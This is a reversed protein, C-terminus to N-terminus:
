MAWRNMSAPMGASATDASSTRSRVAAVGQGRQAVALDVDEERDVEEVFAEVDGLDVGHQEQARGLARSDEQLLQAAAEPEGPCSRASRAPSRRAGVGHTGNRDVTELAHGADAALRQLALDLLTERKQRRATLDHEVRDRLIEHQLVDPLLHGRSPRRQHGFHTRMRVIPQRGIEVRGSTAQFVHQLVISRPRRQTAIGALEVRFRTRALGFEDLTDAREGM